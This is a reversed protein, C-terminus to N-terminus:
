YELLDGPSVLLEITLIMLLILESVFVYGSLLDM